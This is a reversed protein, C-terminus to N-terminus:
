SKPTYYDVFKTLGTLLPILVVLTEIEGILGIPYVGFVTVLALAFSSAINFLKVGFFNPTELLLLLIKADGELLIKKSKRTFMSYSNEIIRFILKSFSLGFSDFFLLTTIIIKLFLLTKLLFDRRM